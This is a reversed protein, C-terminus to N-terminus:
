RLVKFYNWSHSSIIFSRVFLRVSLCFIYIGRCLHQPYLLFFVDCNVIYVIYVLWQESDSNRDAEKGGFTVHRKEVGQGGSKEVDQLTLTSFTRRLKQLMKSFPSCIWVCIIKISYINYMLWKQLVNWHLFQWFSDSIVYCRLFSIFTM